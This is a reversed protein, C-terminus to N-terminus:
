WRPLPLVSAQVPRHDGSSIACDPIIASFYVCGCGCGCGCAGREMVEGSTLVVGADGLDPAGERVRGRLPSLPPWTGGRERLPECVRGRLRLPICAAGQLGTVRVGAEGAEGAEEETRLRLPMWRAGDGRAATRRPGDVEPVGVDGGFCRRLPRLAVYADGVAAADARRLLLTLPPCAAGFSAGRAISVTGPAAACSPAARVDARRLADFPAFAAAADGDGDAADDDAAGGLLRSFPSLPDCAGGRLGLTPADPAGLRLPTLPPNAAGVAADAPRLPLLM